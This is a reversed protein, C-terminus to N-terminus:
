STLRPAPEDEIALHRYRHVRRPASRSGVESRPAGTAGAGGGRGAIPGCRPTGPARRGRELVDPPWVPFVPGRAEWARCRAQPRPGCKRLVRLSRNDDRTSRESADGSPTTRTESSPRSDLRAEFSPKSDASPSGSARPGLRTRKSRPDPSACDPRQRPSPKGAPPSDNGVGSRLRLICRARLREARERHRPSRVRFGDCRESHWREPYRVPAGPWHATTRPAM